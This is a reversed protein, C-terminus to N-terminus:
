WTEAYLSTGLKQAMFDHFLYKFPPLGNKTFMSIENKEGLNLNYKGEKLESNTESKNM